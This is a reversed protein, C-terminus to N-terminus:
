FVLVVAAALAALGLSGAKIASAASEDEAGASASPSIVGTSNSSPNANGTATPLKSSDCSSVISISTYTSPTASPPISAGSPLTMTTTITTTSDPLDDDYDQALVFSAFFVTAITSFRMKLQQSPRRSPSQHPDIPISPSQHPNIPISPSQHPNIPISPNIPKHTHKSSPAKNYGRPFINPQTVKTLSALLRFASPFRHSLPTATSPTSATPQFAPPNSSHSFSFFSFFLTLSQCPWCELYASAGLCWAAAADARDVGDGRM